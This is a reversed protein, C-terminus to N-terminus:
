ASALQRNLEDIQRQLEDATSPVNGEAPVDCDDLIEEEDYEEFYEEEEYDDYEEYQNAVDMQDPVHGKSLGNYNPKVAQEAQETHEERQTRELEQVHNQYHNMQNQREMEAERETEKRKAAEQQVREQHRHQQEEQTKLWIDDSSSASVLAALRAHERKEKDRANREALTARWRADEREKALRRAMERKTEEVTHKTRQAEELKQQELTAKAERAAEIRREMDTIEAEAAAVADASKKDGATAGKIGTAVGAATKKLMPKPIPDKLIDREASKSNSKVTAWDPKEWQHRRQLEDMGFRDPQAVYSSTQGAAPKTANGWDPKSWPNKEQLNVGKPKNEQGAWEYDYEYTKNKPM